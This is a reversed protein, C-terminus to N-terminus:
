AASSTPIHIAGSRLGETVIEDLDNTTASMIGCNCNFVHAEELIDRERMEQSIYSVWDRLVPTTFRPDTLEQWITEDTVIKMFGAAKTIFLAHAQGYDLKHVYTTYGDSSPHLNGPQHATYPEGSPQKVKIGGAVINVRTGTHLIARIQKITQTPAILSILLMEGRGSIALRDFPTNPVSIDKGTFEIGGFKTEEKV